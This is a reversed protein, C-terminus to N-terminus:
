RPCQRPAGRCERPGAARGADGLSTTATTAHSTVRTHEMAYWRSWEVAIEDHKACDTRYFDFNGLTPTETYMNFKFSRTSFYTM